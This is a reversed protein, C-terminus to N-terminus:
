NLITNLTKILNKSSLDKDRITGDTNILFSSPYSSLGYIKAARNPGGNLESLNIWSIQDKSAAKQWHSRDEDVSVSVIELGKSHYKKYLEALVPNEERCPICWSAWFNLLIVKAKIESLKHAKGESDYQVFDAFKKGVSVDKTVNIFEKIEKGSISHKNTISLKDYLVLSRAKGWTSYYDKFLALDIVNNPSKLVYNYTAENFKNEASAAEAIFSDSQNKVGSTKSKLSDLTHQYPAIFKDYKAQEIQTVSGTILANKFDGDILRINIPKNELWFFKYENSTKTRLLVEQPMTPLIGTFQFESNTVLASDVISDRELFLDKNNFGTIHGEIKFSNKTQQKDSINCASVLCVVVLIKFFNTM